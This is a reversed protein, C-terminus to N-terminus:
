IAGLDLPSFAVYIVVGYIKKRVMNTTLLDDQDVQSSKTVCGSMAELTLGGLDFFFLFARPCANLCPERTIANDLKSTPFSM